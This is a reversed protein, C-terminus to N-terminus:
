QCNATSYLKKNRELFLVHKLLHLALEFCKVLFFHITRRLKRFLVVGNNQQLMTRYNLIIENVIIRVILHKLLHSALEFCKVLTFHTTHRLKGILVVWQKTAVYHLLTGNRENEQDLYLRISTPVFQMKEENIKRRKIVLLTFGCMVSINYPSGIKFSLFYILNHTM